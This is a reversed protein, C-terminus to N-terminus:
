SKPVGLRAAAPHPHLRDALKHHLGVLDAVLEVRNFPPVLYIGACTPLVQEILEAAIQQGARRASDRDLGALRDRVAQPVVMGPVENHLFEANRQSVLPFIGVFIPITVGREDLAQRARRWIDADFVAQTLAYTAGAAVKRALKGAEFEVRKFNPNFAVGPRLGARRKIGGGAYNQGANLKAIIELLGISNVDYVSTAGPQDGIKAPDGTLALVNRVGLAAAGMLESQLGILNRDRCSLHIMVEAGLERHYLHAMAVNGMRMAALPNDGVTIVDAGLDLLERGATLRGEFDLGYPLDLEVLVPSREELRDLFCPAQEEPGFLDPPPAEAEPQLILIRNRRVPRREGLRRAMVAIDAPTTGCCGGVLNAGADAMREAMEAMYPASAQYVVRGEVNQPYGANPYASIRAETTAGLTEIVRLVNSVGRGCNTGVVHAGAEVLAWMTEVVDVDGSRRHELFTMQAIVPLDTNALAARLAQAVHRRNSFTELLIVDAGAEALAVIQERYIEFVQEDSPPLEREPESSRHAPLPGVAGAVFAKEGAVERVLEVGRANIEAVRDSLEVLALRVRNAGFTNTELVRAGASLYEAHVQQVLWPRTLNLQDYNAGLEVGRRYLETGMAGDGVLVQRDLLDLFDQGRQNM